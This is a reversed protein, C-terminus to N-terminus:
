STSPLAILIGTLKWSDLSAPARTLLPSPVAEAAAAHRGRASCSGTTCGTFYASIMRLEAVNAGAAELCARLEPQDLAVCAASVSGDSADHLSSALINVFRRCSEARRLQAHRQRAAQSLRDLSVKEAAIATCAKACLSALDLNDASQQQRARRFKQPEGAALQLRRSWPLERTQWM